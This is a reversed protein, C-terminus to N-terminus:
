RRRSISRYLVFMSPDVTCPLYDRLKEAILHKLSHEELQTPDRLNVKTGQMDRPDALARGSPPFALAGRTGEQAIELHFM